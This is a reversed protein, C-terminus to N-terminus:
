RCLDAIFGLDLGAASPREALLHRRVWEASRVGHGPDIGDDVRGIDHIAAAWRLEERRIAGPAALADALVEAWVLVRTTHPAGHIGRPNFRFWGDDPLYDALSAIM